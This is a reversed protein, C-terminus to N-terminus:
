FRFMLGVTASFGSLDIRDFGTFDSSMKAHARDYRAEGVIGTRATMSYDVGAAAYGAPAWSTSVLTSPFVDLTQYDVFDGSQRFKYWVSGVGASVYPAVRAPVWALQGLTRGPTALYYRLGVMVPFRRLSTSQEIPLDNNDVWDRFESGATRTSYGASLQLALRDSLAFGLDASISSGAFDNRGLTLHQRSFSFVDSGTTPLSYGGKLTFSGRPAGFLFGDGSTPQAGVGLPIGIALAWLAARLATRRDLMARTRAVLSDYPFLSQGIVLRNGEEAIDTGERWMCYAARGGQAAQTM